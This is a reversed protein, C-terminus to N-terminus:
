PKCLGAVGSGPSPAERYGLREVAPLFASNYPGPSHEIVYYFCRTTQAERAITAEIYAPDLHSDGGAAWFRGKQTALVISRDNRAEYELMQGNYGVDFFVVKRGPVSSLNRRLERWRGGALPARVSAAFPTFGDWVLLALMIPAVWWLRRTATMAWSAGLAVIFLLAPYAPTYYRNAISTRGYLFGHVFAIQGVILATWLLFDARRRSVDVLVVLLVFGYLAFSYPAGFPLFAKLTDSYPAVTVEHWAGSWTPHGSGSHGQWLYVCVFYPLYGLGVGVMAALLYRLERAVERPPRRACRTAVVGLVYVGHVTFVWVDFALSYLMLVAAVAYRWARRPTPDALARLFLITAVFTTLAALSYPRLEQALYKTYSGYVLMFAFFVRAMPQLEDLWFLVFAILGLMVLWSFGRLFWEDSNVRILLHLVVYYLPPQSHFEIPLSFTRWMSHAAVGYTSAEDLWLERDALHPANVFLHLCAFLGAITWWVIRARKPSGSISSLPPESM